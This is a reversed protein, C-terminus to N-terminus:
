GNNSLFVQLAFTGVVSLIRFTAFAPRSRNANMESLNTMARVAFPTDFQRNSHPILM